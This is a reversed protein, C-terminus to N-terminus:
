FMMYFRQRKLFWFHMKSLSRNGKKNLVLQYLVCLKQLKLEKLKLYVLIGNNGFPCINWWKSKGRLVETQSNRRYNKRRKERSTGINASGELHLWRLGTTTCFLKNRHYHPRCKKLSACFSIHFYMYFLTGHVWVKHYILLTKLRFWEQCVIYLLRSVDRM